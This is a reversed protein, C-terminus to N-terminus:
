MADLMQIHHKVVPVIKMAVAKLPMAKGGTAYAQQLSLAQGHATKQQAIYTADRATGTQARLQAIMDSQAPTLMPPTAAVKARLAAAKVDTTSKSHASIMMNAFSKVKPNTTTQLVVQASEREFLDSAGATKVYDAAPMVQAAAPVAFALGITALPIFTKM